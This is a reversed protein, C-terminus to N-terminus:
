RIVTSGGTVTSGTPGINSGENRVTYTAGGALIAAALCGAILGVWGETTAPQDGNVLAATISGGFATTAAILAKRVRNM